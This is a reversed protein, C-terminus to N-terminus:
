FGILAVKRGLLIPTRLVETAGPWLARMVRAHCVDVFNGQTGGYSKGAVSCIRAVPMIADNCTELEALASCSWGM